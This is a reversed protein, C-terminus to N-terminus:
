LVKCTRMAKFRKCAMDLFIRTLNGTMQRDPKEAFIIEGVGTMYKNIETKNFGGVEM